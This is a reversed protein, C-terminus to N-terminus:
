KTSLIVARDMVTYTFWSHITIFIKKMFQYFPIAVIVILITVHQPNSIMGISAILTPCGATKVIYTTLSYGDESLYFGFLSFM